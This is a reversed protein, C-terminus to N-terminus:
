IINKVIKEPTDAYKNSKAKTVQAGPEYDSGKPSETGKGEM